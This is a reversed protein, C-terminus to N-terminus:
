SGILAAMSAPTNDVGTQFQREEILGKKTKPFPKKM